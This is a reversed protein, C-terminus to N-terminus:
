KRDSAEYSRLADPPAALEFYVLESSATGGANM